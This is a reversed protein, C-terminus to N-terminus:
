GRAENIERGRIRKRHVFDCMARNSAAWDRDPNVHAFCVGDRGMLESGCYPCRPRPAEDTIAPVEERLVTDAPPMVQDISGAAQVITNM